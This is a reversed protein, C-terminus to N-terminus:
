QAHGKPDALGMWPDAARSLRRGGDVVLEAGTVFSAEPSVLWSVANAVEEPSGLRGLLTPAEGAALAQTGGAGAAALSQDSSPTSIAGPSVANVRVGRPSLEVALAKTLSLLGGKSAVYASYTPLPLNAQIATINVVAGGGAAIMDPAFLRVLLAAASLNTSIVKDWEAPDLELLGLRPGHYAANNVLVRAPGFHDLVREHLAERDKPSSVDAGVALAQGGGGSIRAATQQAADADIDVVAV